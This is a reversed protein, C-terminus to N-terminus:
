ERVNELGSPTTLVRSGGFDKPFIRKRETRWSGKAVNSWNRDRHDHSRKRKPRHTKQTSRLLFGAMPKLSLGSLGPHDWRLIRLQKGDKFVRRGFLIM